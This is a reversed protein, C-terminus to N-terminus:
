GAWYYQSAAPLVTTVQTVPLDMLELLFLVDAFSGNTVGGEVDLALYRYGEALKEVEITWAVCEGDDDAAATHQLTSSIETLAGDAATAVKPEVVPADSDHITGFRLLIHARIVGTLDIFSGSAPLDTGAALQDNNTTTGEVLKLNHALIFGPFM